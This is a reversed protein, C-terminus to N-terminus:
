TVVFVVKQGERLDQWTSPRVLSSRNMHVDGLSDTQIFGFQSM